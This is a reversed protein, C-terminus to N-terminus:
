DHQEILEIQVDGSQALATSFRAQGPTGRYRAGTLTVDRNVLFPGIGLTEHWQLAGAELNPVVWAYQIIPLSSAALSGPANMGAGAIARIADLEAPAGSLRRTQARCLRPQPGPHRPHEP